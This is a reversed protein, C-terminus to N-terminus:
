PILAAGAQGMAYIRVELRFPGAPTPQPPRLVFEDIQKLEGYEKWSLRMPHGRYNVAQFTTSCASRPLVNGCGAFAGTAPVAIMVDTVPFALENVIVIGDIEIGAPEEGGTGPGPGACAALLTVSLLM